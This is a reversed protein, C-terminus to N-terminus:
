EKVREVLVVEFVHKRETFMSGGSRKDPFQVDCCRVRLLLDLVDDKEYQGEPISIMKTKLSASAVTPTTGGVKKDLKKEGELVLTPKEVASSPQEDAHEGELPEKQKGSAGGDGNGNAKAAEEAARADAEKAQNKLDDETASRGEPPAETASGM